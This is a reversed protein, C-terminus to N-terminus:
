EQSYAARFARRARTLLSEITKSTEGWAAAIEAVTQGDLYKARLVEEYRTPLEALAWAVQEATPNATVLAVRNTSPRPRKRLEERICNAAIGCVWAAFSGRLPDFQGLRRVAILWATQVVDDALGSQGRLRWRVYRVVTPDAREFLRQWAWEHGALAAQQWGWVQEAEDAAM